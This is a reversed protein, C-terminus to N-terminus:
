QIFNFYCNSYFINHLYFELFVMFAIFIYSEARMEVCRLQVCARLGELM